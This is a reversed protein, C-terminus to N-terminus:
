GGRGSGLIQALAWLQDIFGIREDAEIIRWDLNLLLWPRGTIGLQMREPGAFPRGPLDLDDREAGQVGLASLM